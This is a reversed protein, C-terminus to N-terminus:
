ELPMLLRSSLAIVIFILVQVITNQYDIKALAADIQGQMSVVLQGEHSIVNSRLAKLEENEKSLADYSVKSKNLAAELDAIAIKLQSNSRNSEVLQAQLM